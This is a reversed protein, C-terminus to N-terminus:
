YSKLEPSSESKLKIMKSIPLVALVSSSDGAAM